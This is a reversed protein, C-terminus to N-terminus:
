LLSLEGYLVCDPTNDVDWKGTETCMTSSPGQLYRGVGCVFEARNQYM